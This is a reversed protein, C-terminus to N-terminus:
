GGGRMRITAMAADFNDDSLNWIDNASVGTDGGTQKSHGSPASFVMDTAGSQISSELRRARVRAALAEIGVRSDYKKKDDPSLENFMQEVEGLLEEKFGPVVDNIENLSNEREVREMAPGYKRNMDEEIKRREVSLVSSLLNVVEPDTNEPIGGLQYNEDPAIETPEDVVASKAGELMSRIAEDRAGQAANREEIVKEYNAKTVTTDDVNDPQVVSMPNMDVSDDFASLQDRQQAM